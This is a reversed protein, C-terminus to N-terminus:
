KNMYSISISECICLFEAEYRSFINAKSEKRLIYFIHPMQLLGQLKAEKSLNPINVYKEDM